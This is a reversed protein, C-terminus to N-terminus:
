TQELTIVTGAPLRTWESENDAEGWDDDWYGDDYGNTGRVVVGATASVFLVVLESNTDKYLAPFSHEAAGSRPLAITTKM